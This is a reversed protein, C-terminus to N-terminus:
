PVTPLWGASQTERMFEVDQRGWEFIVGNRRLLIKATSTSIVVCSAIEVGMTKPLASSSGRRRLKEREASRKIQRKLKRLTGWLSRAGPIHRNRDRGSRLQPPYWFCSVRSKALM